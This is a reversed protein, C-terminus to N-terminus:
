WENLIKTKMAPVKTFELNCFGPDEKSYLYREM